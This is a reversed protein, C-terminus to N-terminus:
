SDIWKGIAEEMTEKNFVKHEGTSGKAWLVWLPEELSKEITLLVEERMPRPRRQIDIRGYAGIILTGVPLFRYVQGSLNIELTPCTYRGIHDESLEVAGRKTSALQQGVYPQMWHEIDTYLRGIAQLWKERQQNWDISEDAAKKEALKKLKEELTM